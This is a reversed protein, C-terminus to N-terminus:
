GTGGRLWAERLRLQEPTPDPNVVMRVPIGKEDEEVDIPKSFRLSFSHPLFSNAPLVRM